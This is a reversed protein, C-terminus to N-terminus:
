EKRKYPEFPKGSDFIKGGNDLDILAYFVQGDEQLIRVEAVGNKLLKPMHYYEIDSVAEGKTNIIIYMGEANTNTYFGESFREPNGYMKPEKFTVAAYGDVFPTGYEYINPIVMEGEHNIYGVKGDKQVLALGNNFSSYYVAEPIQKVRKGEKDIFYQWGNYKEAIVAVGESFQRAEGYICPIVIKGNKDVFGAKTRKNLNGPLGMSAKAMGEYLVSYSFNLVNIRTDIINHNKDITMWKGKYRVLCRNEVFTAANDYKAEIVWEGKVNIFGTKGDKITARFLGESLPGIEEIGLKQYDFVIEGKTNILSKYFKYTKYIKGNFEIERDLEDIIINAFGNYFRSRFSINGEPLKLTNGTRNIYGSKDAKLYWENESQSFLIQFQLICLLILIIRKM